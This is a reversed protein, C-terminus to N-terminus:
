WCCYDVPPTSNQFIYGLLYVIDVIGVWADGDADGICAAPVPPPGDNFAYNILYVVDPLSVLGDNNVDGCVITDSVAAAKRSEQVPQDEAMGKLSFAGALLIILGMALWTKLTITKM